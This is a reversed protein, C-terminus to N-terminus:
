TSIHDSPRDLSWVSMSPTAEAAREKQRGIDQRKTLSILERNVLSNGEALGVVVRNAKHHYQSEPQITGYQALSPIKTRSEFQTFM